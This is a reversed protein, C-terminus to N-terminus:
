ADDIININLFWSDNSRIPGEFLLVGSLPTINYDVGATASGNSIQYDVTFDGNIRPGNYRFEFQGTGANESVSFDSVTLRQSFLSTGLLM